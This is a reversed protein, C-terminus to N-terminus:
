KRMDYTRTDQFRTTFETITYYRIPVFGRPVRSLYYWGRHKSWGQEESHLQGYPAVYGVAIRSPSNFNLEFQSANLVSDHRCWTQHCGFLFLFLILIFSLKKM